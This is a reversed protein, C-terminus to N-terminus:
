YNWDVRLDDVAMATSSSTSRSLVIRVIMTRKCTLSTDTTVNIWAGGGSGIFSFPKITVYSYTAADLLELSGTAGQDAPKIWVSASCYRPHGVPPQPIVHACGYRPLRTASTNGVVDVEKDILLFSGVGVPESHAFSFLAAKSGSRASSTAGLYIDGTSSNNWPHWNAASSGEFGNTYIYDYCSAPLTQAHATPSLLLLFLGLVLTLNKM